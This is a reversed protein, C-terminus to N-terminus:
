VYFAEIYNPTNTDLKADKLAYSENIYTSPLQELCYQSGRDDMIYNLCNCEYPDWGVGEESTEVM